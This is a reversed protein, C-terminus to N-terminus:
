HLHFYISIFIFIFVLLFYQCEHSNCCYQHCKSSKAYSIHLVVISYCKEFKLWKCCPFFLQQILACMDYFCYFELFFRRFRFINEVFNDCQNTSITEKKLFFILCHLLSWYLFFFPVSEGLQLSSADRPTSTACINVLFLIVHRFFPIVFLIIKCIIFYVSKMLYNTCLLALLGCSVFISFSRGRRASWRLHLMREYFIFVRQFYFWTWDGNISSTLFIVKEEM